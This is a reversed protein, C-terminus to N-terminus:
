ICSVEQQEVKWVVPKWASADRTQNDNRMIVKAGIHYIVNAKVKLRFEQTVGQARHQRVRFTHLGESVKLLESHFVGTNEDVQQLIAPFINKNEPTQRSIYVLGCSGQVKSLDDLKSGLASLNSEREGITLDIKPIVKNTRPINVVHEKGSRSVKISEVPALTNQQLQVYLQEQNDATIQLQNVAIIEDGPKVNLATALGTPSITLVNFVHNTEDLSLILGLDSQQTQPLVAHYKFNELNNGRSAETKEILLLTQKIDVELSKLLHQSRPSLQSVEDAHLGLSLICLIISLLKSYYINM